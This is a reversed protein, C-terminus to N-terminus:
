SEVRASRLVPYFQTFVHDTQGRLEHCPRCTGDPLAQAKASIEGDKTTFDFFGWGGAFRSSDKVSAQLAAAPESQSGAHVRELVLVTGDPFTGTKAYERYAAPNVYVRNFADHPGSHNLGNSTGIFVWDQYRDPLVLTDKGEFVAATSQIAPAARRIQGLLTASIVALLALSAFAYRHERFGLFLVREVRLFRGPTISTNRIQSFVTERVADLVDGGQLPQLPTRLRSKLLSQSRQLQLCIEQCRLCADIHRAVAEAEAAPLDNEIFLALTERSSSCNM